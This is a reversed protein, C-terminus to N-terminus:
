HKKLDIILPLHDSFGGQYSFGRFTPFPTYGPYGPDKQMLFDPNFIKLLKCDTYIGKVSYLIGGSVIVQDIM